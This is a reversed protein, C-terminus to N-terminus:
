CNPCRWRTSPWIRPVASCAPTLLTFFWPVGIAAASAFTLSLYLYGSGSLLTSFFQDEHHGMRDRVVGMFWLFSIGALTVLSMALSLNKAQQELWDSAGLVDVPIAPQILIWSTSRSVASVRGGAEGM